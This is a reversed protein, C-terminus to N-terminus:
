KLLTVRKTAVVQDAHMRILYVGSAARAGRRDTGDWDLKGPGWPQEPLSWERVRRGALDYISITVPGPNALEWHITTQPNFPNPRAGLLRTVSPRVLDPAARVLLEESRWIVGVDTVGVLQYRLAGEDFLRVASPDVWPEEPRVTAVTEFPAGSVSRLLELSAFGSVPMGDWALELGRPVWRSVLPLRLVPVGEPLLRMPLAPELGVGPVTFGFEADWGCWRWTPSVRRVEAGPESGPHIRIVPTEGEPPDAVQELTGKLLWATQLTNPECFYPRVKFNEGLYTDSWFMTGNSEWSAVELWEPIELNFYVRSITGLVNEIRVYVEYRVSEGPGTPLIPEPEHVFSDPSASVMITAPRDATQDVRVPAVRYSRSTPGLAWMEYGRSETPHVVMQGQPPFSGEMGEIEVSLVNDIDWHLTTSDGLVIAPPDAYFENFEIYPGYLYTSKTSPGASNWATVTWNYYEPPDLYLSDRPAVHYAVGSPSRVQVSDAGEVNWVLWTPEDPM